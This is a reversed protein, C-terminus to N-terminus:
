KGYKLSKMIQKYNRRVQERDMSRIEDATVLKESSSSSGLSGPTKLFNELARKEAKEKELCKRRHYVAYASALTAGNTKVYEYVDSPIEDENVEPFLLLLEKLESARKKESEVSSRLEELEAKLASNEDALSIDQNETEIIQDENM